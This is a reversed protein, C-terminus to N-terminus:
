LNPPFTLYKHVTNYFDKLQINEMLTTSTMYAIYMNM